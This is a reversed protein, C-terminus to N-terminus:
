RRENLVKTLMFIVPAAIAVVPAAVVVVFAAVVVVAAAVVVAVSPAVLVIVRITYERVHEFGSHTGATTTFHVEIIGRMMLKM